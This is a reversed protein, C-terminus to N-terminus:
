QYAKKHIKSLIIFILFIQIDTYHIFRAGIFFIILNYFNIIQSTFINAKFLKFKHKRKLYFFMLQHFHSDDPDM